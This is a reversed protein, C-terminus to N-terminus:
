KLARRSDPGLDSHTEKIERAIRVWEVVAFFVGREPAFAKGRANLRRM